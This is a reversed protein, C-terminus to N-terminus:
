GALLQKCDTIEDLFPYHPYEKEIKARSL